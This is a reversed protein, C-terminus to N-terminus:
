FDEYETVTFVRGDPGFRYRIDHKECREIIKRNCTCSDMVCQGTRDPLVTIYFLKRKLFRNGYNMEPSIRFKTKYIRSSSKLRLHDCSRYSCQIELRRIKEAAENLLEM